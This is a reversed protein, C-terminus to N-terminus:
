IAYRVIVIGSGGNGGNGPTSSRTGGGGGGTNPTANSGNSSNNAGAGGGGAGGAGSANTSGGGGGGAFYYHTSSLQGVSLLAGAADTFSNYFGVGGAGPNDGGASGIDGGVGGAGGGGASPYGNSASALAQGGAYGYGTASGSSSQTASGGTGAGGGGGGSGGAGGNPGQVVNNGGGYGGGLATITDFVSNGGPTANVGPSYNGKTGGAGVTVTKAGTTVARASQWCLGGAGGGGAIFGGGGGGGAVVLVDCSLGKAPTFTGSSLFAHYWYTGDTQIIDGGSAYPAIVPTTGVAALGYLSFTSYQTFNGGSPYIQVTTIAGTGTWLGANLSAYATTGNNEMVADVSISKQNSSTYNPVYIEANGFTSATQSTGDVAAVGAYMFSAASSNDYTASAGNGYLNKTSYGSSSIGGSTGFKLYLNAQSADCRTSTVVKLDTYGSQPINNFTVSSAGAEGVTVTELLVYNAGM